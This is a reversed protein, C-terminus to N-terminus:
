RMVEFKMSEQIIRRVDEERVFKQRLPDILNIYKNIKELERQDAKIRLEKKILEIEKRKTELDAEIKDLRQDIRELKKQIEKFSETLTKNISEIRDVLSRQGQELIRLRRNHQNLRNIVEQSPGVEREREFLPM